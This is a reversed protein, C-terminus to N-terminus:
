SAPRGRLREALVVAEKRNNTVLEISVRLNTIWFRLEALLQPHALYGALVAKATDEDFPAECDLLEQQIGRTNRHCHAWIHATVAQPTIGRVIKRYEPEFKLLFNAQSSSGTVYYDALASPLAPDRVLGIEGASRMEQYTTDRPIYPYLQSAQYFARVTKWASGDVLEGSEAHQIASEGYGQVTRWFVLRLEMEAIDAALDAAIRGLYEDGRKAERRADNWNDVQLGIFVGLVVIVLDIAIATWHQRRVHEIMRRLFM